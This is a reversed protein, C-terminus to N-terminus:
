LAGGEKLESSVPAEHAQSDAVFEADMDADANTDLAPANGTAIAFLRGRLKQNFVTNAIESRLRTNLLMRAQMQQEDDYDEVIREIEQDIEDDAFTLQEAEAIQQLALSIKLREEGQPMLSEVAEDHEQGRYELMQELTIGYRSLEKVQEHLIADAEQKILAEPLDYETQAVVQQIFNDITEAETSRRENEVLEARVKERLEDLSGEFEELLPLEDWEPLFREQVEDVTVKFTVDQGRVRENPHDEPLHGVVERTEGPMIGLLGDYLGPVLHDPELVAKTAPIEEDPDREDIPEDDIFSEIRVTLQDAHQAPRPEEPVRLVVHRERRADMADAVMKDTIESIEFPARIARYDPLAITPAVPVMVRFGYPEADLNVHGLTPPGVPEIQEQTLAERFAKNILDDTAEEILASRGFYNEIIFRPAKGKRFGPINYKQSLRRAARDLGKEVQERDLEIDLALLSQPLKETTVKM